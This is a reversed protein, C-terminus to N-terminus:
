ASGLGAMLRMLAEQSAGARDIMGTMRGGRLVMIRTSLHIVEPLESSILLVGAGSGALSDVLGHIEAKAGVDVGRTPEDVILIGCEAAMWRAIVLKQQNGGSLGAAPADIGPARVRLRNVYERALQQERGRRVWGLRSMRELIPLSINERANMSLVLGHRKRDEPVLGLGRRMAARVDGLRLPRGQVFIRGSASRDLGFIAEALETRGAGVLGAVGLIEGARISFSIDRFRGPSSLGEVRLLEEGPEQELHAPFYASLPRGIMLEVLGAEDFGDTPRTEVVHGDRLVTVHDAIAFVEELRHSVYLITVGQRKLRAILDFLRRCEPQSLSSTPEDFVLIRAGRAVAAAIQVLQQQSIALDGVRTDPDIVTEMDALWAVALERMRRRALFPGRSPLRGLCLNEAVTLNECFLLEQHVMGIGAAGAARADRFRVTAGGVELVGEDPSYIGALIKGLTSKGAGNEGVLAHCAGKAVDLDVHRLARVGPFRKGINRFRVIPEPM